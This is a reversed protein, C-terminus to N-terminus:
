PNLVIQSMSEDAKDNNKNLAREVLTSDNPDDFTLRNEKRLKDVEAILKWKLLATTNTADDTDNSSIEECFSKAREM